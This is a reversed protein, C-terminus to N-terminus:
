ERTASAGHFVIDGLYGPAARPAAFRRDHRQAPLLGLRFRLGSRALADTYRQLPEIGRGQHYFMFAIVGAARNLSLLDAPRGSVLWDALGTVSTIGGTGGRRFRDNELRVWHTYRDLKATPSDFDVQVGRVRWGRRQWADIVPAAVAQLVGNAPLREMRYVPVLERGERPARGPLPGQEEFRGSRYFHGQLLYVRANEDCRRPSAGPWLWCDADPVRTTQAPPDAADVIGRSAESDAPPTQAIVRADPGLPREGGPEALQASTDGPRRESHTHQATVFCTGIHLSVLLALAATVPTCRVVRVPYKSTRPVKIGRDVAAWPKAGSEHRCRAARHLPTLGAKADM